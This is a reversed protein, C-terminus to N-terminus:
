FRRAPDPEASAGDYGDLECWSYESEACAYTIGSVADRAADPCVGNNDFKGTACADAGASPSFTAYSCDGATAGAAQCAAQGNSVEATCTTYATTTMCTDDSTDEATDSDSWTCSAHADCDGSTSLAACAESHTLTCTPTVQTTLCQPKTMATATSWIDCESQPETGALCTDSRLAQASPPFFLIDVGTAGDSCGGQPCM